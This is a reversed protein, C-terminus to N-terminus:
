TLMLLGVKGPVFPCEEESMYSLYTWKLTSTKTCVDLSLLWNYFLSHGFKESNRRPMALEVRKEIMKAQKQVHEFGRSLFAGCRDNFTKSVQLSHLLPSHLFNIQKFISQYNFISPRHFLQSVIRMNAVEGYSLSDLILFFVETPLTELNKLDM